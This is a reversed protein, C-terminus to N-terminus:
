FDGREFMIVYLFLTERGRRGRGGGVGVDGLWVEQPPSGQYGLISPQTENTELQQEKRYAQESDLYRFAMKDIQKGAARDTEKDTHWHNKKSDRYM